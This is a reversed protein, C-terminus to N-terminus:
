RIARELWYRRLYADEVGTIEAMARTRHFELGAESENKWILGAEYVLMDRVNILHVTPNLQGTRSFSIRAGTKSLDRITCDIRARGDDYGCVAPLLLQSKRAGHDRRDETGDAAPSLAHNTNSNSM